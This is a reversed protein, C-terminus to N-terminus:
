EIKVKFEKLMETAKQEGFEKVMQDWLPSNRIRQQYAETMAATELVSPPQGVGIAHTGHDDIWIPIDAHEAQGDKRERKLRSKKGM